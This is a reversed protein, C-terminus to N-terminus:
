PNRGRHAPHGRHRRHRADSRGHPGRRPHLV